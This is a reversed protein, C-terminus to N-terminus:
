EGIMYEMQSFQEHTVIGRLNEIPYFDLECDKTFVGIEKKDKTIAIVEFINTDEEDLNDEMFLRVLDGLEILDIINPSSKIIKDVFRNYIDDNIYEEVIEKYGYGGNWNPINEGTKVENYKGIIGKETRVYDGVKM